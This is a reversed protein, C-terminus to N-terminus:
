ILSLWRPLPPTNVASKSFRLSVILGVPSWRWLQALEHQKLPQQQVSARHPALSSLEGDPV